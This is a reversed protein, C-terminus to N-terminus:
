LALRAAEQTSKGDRLNNQEKFSSSCEAHIGTRALHCPATGGCPLTILLRRTLLERNGEALVKEFQKFGRSQQQKSDLKTGIKAIM